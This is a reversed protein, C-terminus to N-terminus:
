EAGEGRDLREKLEGLRTIFEEAQRRTFEGKLNGTALGIEAIAAGVEPDDGHAEKITKIAKALARAQMRTAQGDADTLRKATEAREGETAPKAARKPAPKKAAPRKATSVKPKSATANEAPEKTPGGTQPEIEDPLALDLVQMKIYRRLYTQVSGQVQVANQKVKGANTVIPEIALWPLCFEIAQTPDDVNIVLSVAYPQEETVTVGGDAGTATVKSGKHYTFQELLGVEAFVENQAPIIDGLEMYTWGDYDNLGSKTLGREGIMRRAVMLKQWVNMGKYDPAKSTTAMKRSEEEFDHARREALAVYWTKDIQSIEPMGGNCVLCHEPLSEIKAVQGTEAKVKYLRGVREDTCAFVRNCRQRDVERGEVLQYVRSYKGGAKAILQFASPDDCAMVTQAVPVGDLLYARLADAVVTANNNASFAGAKSTGRVLYSGKVKEHGNTFRAAFNNVDKQWVIALDDEELQFGTRAEWEHYIARVHDLQTEWVAVMVGDTNLQVLTLATVERVLREALELLYLQGSICVSRAQLPDYLDNYQNLTAGYTTNVILKLANATATDGSAKAALREHYIDEFTRPSAMNRSTYGNVVMLSPYYSSVDINIIRLGGGAVERYKPIAGHIGGFGLVVPCGGVDIALKSSWLEEDPVEPDRVRDFFALVEDPIYELLLNDPYAYMREDDWEQREAGLVAATLKANTLSLARAPDLGARDGLALKTELYGHRLFLLAETADVDHTCYFLVEAREDADLAHDVTFDVTTEEVSMGLHGEISKLSTGVQTDKMLDVDNFGWFVGALYPMEWPLGRGEIIWDNVEKVQEADCGAAIARMIWQDYHSGNYSVFMAESHDAMFDLLEDADENWFHTYTADETHKFVVLWDHAFVEFDYVLVEFDGLQSM